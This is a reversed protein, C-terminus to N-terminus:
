VESGPQGPDVPVVKADGGGPVGEKSGSPCSYRRRFLYVSDTRAFFIVREKSILSRTMSM